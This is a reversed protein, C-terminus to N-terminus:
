EDNEAIRGSYTADGAAQMEAKALDALAAQLRAAHGERVQRDHQGLRGAGLQGPVSGTYQVHKRSWGTSM